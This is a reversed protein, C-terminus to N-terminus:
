TLRAKWSAPCGIKPIKPAVHHVHHLGIDGTFWNLVSPLKLHSSGKLAAEVYDWNEHPAWYADEFQHQVYFLWVGAMAAFYFPIVYAVLVTQWGVLWVALALGAAITVNTALVSSQQKAGTATSKGRIRQSIM